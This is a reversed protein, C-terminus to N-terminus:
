QAVTLNHLFCDDICCDKLLIINPNPKDDNRALTTLVIEKYPQKCSQCIWLRGPFCTTSLKGWSRVKSRIKHRRGDRELNLREEAIDLHKSTRKKERWFHAPRRELKWNGSAEQLILLEDAAIYFETDWGGGRPLITWAATVASFFHSLAQDDSALSTALKVSQAQHTTDKLLLQHVLRSLRSFHRQQVAELIPYDM